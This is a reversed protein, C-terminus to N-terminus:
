PALYATYRELKRISSPNLVKEETEMLLSLVPGSLTASFAVNLELVLCM